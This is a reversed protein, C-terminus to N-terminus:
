SGEPGISASGSDSTNLKEPLGRYRIDSSGSARAELNKANVLADSSGSTQVEADVALLEFANVASSGSSSLKLADTTGSVVINSSGDSRLNLSRAVVACEVESSGSTQIVLDESEIRGKSLVDSSGSAIISRIEPTTVFIDIGLETSYSGSSEVHLVSGKVRTVLLPLLNDEAKIMVPQAEGQTLHVDISGGVEISDFSAVERLEEVVNGSGKVLNFTCAAVFSFLCLSTLAFLTKM